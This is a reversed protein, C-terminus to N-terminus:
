QKREHKDIKHIRREHRGGAFPTEMWVRLLETATAEDTVRGGLCAVNADNHERSAKADFEDRIVAARINPHRNAVICMGIASGCVLLGREVEGNALAEAVRHAYDPYDVSDNSATGFDVVDHHAARLQKTLHEKLPFGAHDAGVAIKM